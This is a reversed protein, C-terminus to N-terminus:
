EIAEVAAVMEALQAPRDGSALLVPGLGPRAALKLLEEHLGAPARGASPGALMVLLKPGVVSSCMMQWVDRVARDGESDLELRSYALSQDFYFDSVTFTQGAPWRARDLLGARAGLFQIQRGLGQSPPKPL